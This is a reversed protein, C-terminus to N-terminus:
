RRDRPAVASAFDDELWASFLARQEPTADPRPVIRAETPTAAELVVDATRLLGDRALLVQVKTGPKMGALAAEFRGEVIRRGDIALIEDATQIGGAHAASGHPVASVKARGNEISIRAGLQAKEPDRATRQFVLGVHQLVENVDIAEASEVWRALCDDVRIGTAEAIVDGMKGEPVPREKAGYERVLHRLVDDLSKAGKSRHRIELDLLACVVEGKLYYSVTSNLTNEDPRYAKIWADFSSSELSHVLAGPTDELRAISDALHALYEASTALKALRPIRWDYYSTGGEFWWLLRTYNEEEYRYPFLGEPRIRKVNWLHFFEHAILSVVDLYGSRSTFLEPKVQLSCSARHELGGRGRPSVHWLFVYREYPLYAEPAEGGAWLRASAEVITQTDKAVQDWDVRRAYENNWVAIDHRKGLAEFSRELLDGCEFPSDVLEDFSTAAFTAVERDAVEPLATAVRFGKPLDLVVEAGADKAAEATLFTAAGNFYVHSEDIHNTRVTLDNAYLRYRVRVETAGEHEIAWANKRVKLSRVDRGGAEATFGEVHRAYERVLYSGPTWVPMFVVFPTPLPAGTSSSFTTEIELLHAPADAVRVRHTVTLVAALRLSLRRGM